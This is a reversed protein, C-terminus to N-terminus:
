WIVSIPYVSFYDDSSIITLKNSIAQAIILRDFPDKHHFPLSILEILHSQDIDLIKFNNALLYDAFNEFGIEIILKEKSVKIAM